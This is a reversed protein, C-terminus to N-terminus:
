VSGNGAEKQAHCETVEEITLADMCCSKIARKIEAHHTHLNTHSILLRHNIIKGLLDPLATECSGCGGCLAPDIVLQYM